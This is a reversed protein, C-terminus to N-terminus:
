FLLKLGFQLVRPQNAQSSVTAFAASGFTTNPPSFVPTNSLNFADARIQLTLKETLHANKHVSVDAGRTWDSRAGDFTRPTNGFQYAPPTSFVSTNFWHYPNPNSIGPNIGTWNPRQGGGQSDTGNTASTIGLPSGSYFSGIIGLEWGGLIHGAIGQQRSFFPLQYIVNFIMRHTQDLSSPSWEAKLNNWDQIGGGGLTEGSFPGASDDMMKSYTYSILTSFGHAYRKEVKIQLAHYMSAGWDDVVSTVGTFQPYPVLLQAEAITPASLAGTTIQGYFPNAVLTRLGNGLALASDPLQSWTRNLALKLGRTGVYAVDLVVGKPLERQIDLNWQITYPTVNGRDYYSISQGLLTAAGLSSGFASNLGTPFPNSVTNLPTVGDLSPVMNTSATFGSIGFTSPASGVGWNTAYFIGGGGRVVTKPTAHWAFGLRPALNNADVNSQYRSLGNVGPFELAGKLTLGPINLPVAGQYNFNALQNYRDTRPTEIEYRMGLNVTFTSTVKWDDQVYGAFYKTEMALAPSPAVGGSAPTGLLFSALADGGTATAQVPNPGQSFASTYAFNTSADGTQLANYQIVRAEGGAKINHTRWSKTVSGELAYSDSFVALLGTEGLASTWASNAVSSSVGYGTITVVPFAAPAGIQSALSAPLGLKTIDFGESIPGRFNALRAFSARLMGILTPSFIHDGEAVTNYRTFDQAGFGPSGLDAPGYPSARVYPSDDYSYRAFFRTAGSFNHDLRVSYTNKQIDNGATLAYNNQNTPGSGATNSAPFYALMAKSVPNILNLPIINGPFPDRVYGGSGNSRSSFPNYITIAQGAANKDASFNGALETPNPVTATYTVGQVYRVLETNVFFFTRNRGNYLKPLIVPGGFVGGFQNFKLPPPAQGALNAFWNSANLKDNRLFEYLTFHWDNSGSKTVVNFVGGSARGFEAHFNNTEVKFEEVSDANPYVIPQSQMPSSNPAGDLLFENANGPAGNISISATSIIDVPLDNMGRSTRVGPVLESLAYADRGLLPLEVVSRGGVVQGISQTDTELVPGAATVTVQDTVTGLQLAIDIRITQDVELQLGTRTVTKFGAHELKLSYAGPQLSPATYYGDQNTEVVRQIGTATQVITVKVDPVVAGGQDTARGTFQGTQGL